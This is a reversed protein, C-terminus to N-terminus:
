RCQAALEDLQLAPIFVQAEGLLDRAEDCQGRRSFCRAIEALISGVMRRDRESEAVKAAARAPTVYASCEFKFRNVRKGLRRLRTEPDNTLPCYEDAMFPVAKDSSGERAYAAALERMGGECDGAVMTCIAASQEVRIDNAAPASLAALAARCGKGDYRQIAASVDALTTGTPSTGTPSTGTPSTGTPSATAGGGPSTRPSVATVTASGAGDPPADPTPTPPRAVTLATAPRTAGIATPAVAIAGPRSASRPSGTPARPPSGEPEATPVEPEATPAESQTPPPPPRSAIGPENGADSGSGTAERAIAARDQGSGTAERAIAARDQGSGTAGPDPTTPATASDRRLMFWVTVAGAAAAFLALGGAAAARRRAAATASTTASTTGSATTSTAGPTTDPATTAPAAAPHETRAPSSSRATVETPATGDIEDDYRSRAPSRPAREPLGGAADAVPAVTGPAVIADLADALATMDPFRAAPERALGRAIVGCLQELGPERTRRECVFALLTAKDPAFPPRRGAIAEGLAVCLAYQDAPADVSLGARQEPAMYAPTGAIAGTQTVSSLGDRSPAETPALPSPTSPRVALGFDAVRVRGDAGVLLNAPKVDRHVLGVAHAAALGRAAQAYLRVLGKWDASAGGRSALTDGAVLETAIFVEGDQEGVDHVAIVNPHTLKALARAERLLRDRERGDVSRDPRVLKVAIERHLKPDWAAWVEGMGGAAIRRDLQYREVKRPRAPTGLAGLAAIAAACAECGDVHREFAALEDAALAGEVLGVLQDESPCGTMAARGRRDGRRARRRPARAVPQSRAPQGRGRGRQRPRGRRRGAGHRAERRTAETLESRAQALTRAVTARHIGYLAAIQDLTLGDVQAHRLFNRQRPALGAVALAFARKIARNIEERSYRSALDATLDPMGLLDDDAILEELKRARESRALDVLTRLATVRLWNQLFGFGSYDGIRPPRGSSAVFLKIRLTQLLEDSTIPLRRFRALVGDLDARHVQEFAAIARAEGTACWQALFLDEVRLRGLATSLEQQAAIRDAVAAAFAEDEIPAEPWRARAVALEHALREALGPQALAPHAQEPVRRLVLNWWSTM